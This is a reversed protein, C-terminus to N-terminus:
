TLRGDTEFYRGVSVQQFLAAALPFSHISSHILNVDAGHEILLKALQPDGDESAALLPTSGHYVSTFNPNAGARLLAEVVKLHHQNSAALLPWSDPQLEDALKDGDYYANPDVGKDLLDLVLRLDGKDAAEILQINNSVTEDTEDYDTLGVDKFKARVVSMVDDAIQDNMPSADLSAIDENDSSRLDGSLDPVTFESGDLLQFREGPTCFVAAINLLATVEIESIEGDSAIIDMMISITIERNERQALWLNDTLLAIHDDEQLSAFYEHLEVPGEFQFVKSTEAISGMERLKEKLDSIYGEFIEIEADHFEDDIVALLWIVCLLAFPDAFSINTLDPSKAPQSPIAQPPKSAEDEMSKKKKFWNFM